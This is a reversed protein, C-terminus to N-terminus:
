ADSGGTATKSGDDFVEPLDRIERDTKIMGSILKLQENSIFTYTVPGSGETILMWSRCLYCELARGVPFDMTDVWEHEHGDDHEYEAM